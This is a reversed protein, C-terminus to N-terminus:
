RMQLQKNKNEASYFHITPMRVVGFLMLGTVLGNIGGVAAGILMNPLVATTYALRQDLPAVLVFGCMMAVVYIPIWVWSWNFWVRLVPWQALGLMLAALCMLLILWMDNTSNYIADIRNFAIIVTSALTGALSALLWRGWDDWKHARSLILSQLAVNAIGALLYSRPAVFDREVPFVFAWATANAAAWLGITLLRNM